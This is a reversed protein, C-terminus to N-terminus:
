KGRKKKLRKVDSQLVFYDNCGEIQYADLQRTHLFHFVMSKSLGLEKAADKLTFAAPVTKLKKVKM